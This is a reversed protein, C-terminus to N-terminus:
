DESIILQGPQFTAADGADILKQVTVANQYLMNGASAADFLAFHTVTGWGSPNAVPFTVTNSNSCAGSVPAGFTVSQRVYGNGSVETGGGGEGPASTFLGVYVASPSTYTTNRLVHNLLADELYDTKATM